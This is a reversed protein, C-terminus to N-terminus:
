LTTLVYLLSRSGLLGSWCGRQTKASWYVATGGGCLRVDCVASIDGRSAEVYDMDDRARLARKDAPARASRRRRRVVSLRSRQPPVLVEEVLCSCKKMDHAGQSQHLQQKVKIRQTRSNALKRTLKLCHTGTEIVQEFEGCGQM